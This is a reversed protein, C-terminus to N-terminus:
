KTSRDAQLPGREKELILDLLWCGRTHPGAGRCHALIKASTCGADELADGLIPLEEFTHRDYIVQALTTVTGTRLAPDFDPPSFPNGVLDRFLPLLEIWAAQRATERQRIQRSVDAVRSRVVAWVTEHAVKLLHLHESTTSAAANMEARLMEGAACWAAKRADSVADADATGDAFSEAVEVARRSRDDPLLTWIHRCCAVHFLRQKRESLRGQAWQLLRRLDKCRLWEAETM